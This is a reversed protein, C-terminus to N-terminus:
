QNSSTSTATGGDVGPIKSLAQLASQLAKRADTMPGDRLAFLDKFLTNHLNQFSARLGSMLEEQGKPTSTATTAAVTSTDPVYTMAAQAVVAARAATVAAQAAQIAANAATVNKGASAAISSRDQMKKAIADYRDLLQTFHDTWTKNLNDFQTALRQALQQKVKDQIEAVRQAAKERMTTMRTQAAAFAARLREQSTSATMARNEVKQVGRVARAAPGQAFAVTGSLLVAAAASIISITRLTRM